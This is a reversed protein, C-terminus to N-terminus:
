RLRYKMKTMKRRREKQFLPELYRFAMKEKQRQATVLLELSLLARKV